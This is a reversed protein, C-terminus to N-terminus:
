SMIVMKLLHFYCSSIQNSEFLDKLETEHFNEYNSIFTFYWLSVFRSIKFSAKLSKLLNKQDNFMKLPHLIVTRFIM